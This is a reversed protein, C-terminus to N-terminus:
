QRSVKKLLFLHIKEVKEDADGADNGTDEGEDTADEPRGLLALSGEGGDNEADVQHNNAPVDDNDLDEHRRLKLRQHPEVHRPDPLGNQEDEDANEEDDGEVLEVAALVVDADVEDDSGDVVKDEGDEEDDEADEGEEADDGSPRRM